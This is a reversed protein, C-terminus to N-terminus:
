SSAHPVSRQRFRSCGCPRQRASADMAAINNPGGGGARFFGSEIETLRGSQVRLRLAMLLTGAKEKMTGM